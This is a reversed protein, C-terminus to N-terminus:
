FFDAGQKRGEENLLGFSFGGWGAQGVRHLHVASHYPELVYDRSMFCLEFRFREPAFPFVPPL